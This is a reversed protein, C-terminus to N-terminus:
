AVAWGALDDLVSYATTSTENYEEHQSMRDGEGDQYGKIWEDEAGGVGEFPNLADGYEDSRGANYGKIYPREAVPYDMPDKYNSM